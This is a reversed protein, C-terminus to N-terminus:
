RLLTVSGYFQCVEDNIYSLEIFYVYVGGVADQNNYTGKWWDNFLIFSENSREYVLNGWRDFINYQRIEVVQSEEAPFIKFESNFGSVVTFINPIYTAKNISCDITFDPDNPDLCLGCDDLEYVGNIVGACDTCSENYLPDNPELCEGCDDVEATGNPEGSCDICSQNYNPDTPDLCEGCDDIVANGGVIGACDTCSMNYEPDYPELCEGCDDVEATGNPIGSCDICSQNYVPDTPELCEGCQDIESTGDVVGACDVCSQSFEPDSPDLCEGCDDIVSGGGQVGNCDVIISFIACVADIDAGPTSGSCPLQALDVIEIANFVLQGPDYGPILNDIDVSSTAGGLDTIGFFDDSNLDEFGNLMLQTRTFSDNPRLSITIPEVATGVEFIHLDNSNDGSNSLLNNTFALKIFGGRGLFLFEPEDVTNMGDYDSVGLAGDPFDDAIPCGSSYELVVDAFSIGSGCILCGNTPVFLCNSDECDILGDGDNDIGDACLLANNEQSFINFYSIVLIAMFILRM